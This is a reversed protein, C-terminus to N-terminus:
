LQNLKIQMVPMVERNLDIGLVLDKAALKRLKGIDPQEYTEGHVRCCRRDTGVQRQNGITTDVYKKRNKSSEPENDIINEAARV